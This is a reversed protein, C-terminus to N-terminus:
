HVWRLLLEGQLASRGSLLKRDTFHEHALRVDHRPKRDAEEAGRRRCRLRSGRPGARGRRAGTVGLLEPRARERVPRVARGALGPGEAGARDGGLPSAVALRDGAVRLLEAGARDGAPGIARRGLGPGETGPRDGGLAAAVALGHGAVRLLKARARDGIPGISRAASGLLEAAARQLAVLRAALGASDTSGWRGKLWCGVEFM